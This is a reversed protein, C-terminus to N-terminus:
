TGEIYVCVDMPIFSNLTCPAEIVRTFNGRREKMWVPMRDCNDNMNNGGRHVLVWCHVMLRSPYHTSLFYKEM